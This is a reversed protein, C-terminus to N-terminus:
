IPLAAPVLTDHDALDRYVPKDDVPNDDIPKKQEQSRTGTSSARCGFKPGRARFFLESVKTFAESDM